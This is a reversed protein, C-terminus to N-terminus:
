LHSNTNKYQKLGQKECVHGVIGYTRVCLENKGIWTLMKYHQLLFSIKTPIQDILTKALNTDILNWLSYFAFILRRRYSYASCFQPLPKRGPPDNWFNHPPPNCCGGELLPPPPLSFRKKEQNLNFKQTHAATNWSKLFLHFFIVTQVQQSKYM